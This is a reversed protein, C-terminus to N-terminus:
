KLGERLTSKIEEIIERKNKEYAPGMFPRPSMKSTGFEIFKGYFIKSNDSKDIGVLIYKMGAKAKVSSIGLGEKLKGTKVPANAKADELVPEAANRLAQNELKSVNAGINKLKNLIEDVGSLEINDVAILRRHKLRLLDTRM